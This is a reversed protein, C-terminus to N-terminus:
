KTTHGFCDDLANNRLQTYTNSAVHGDIYVCNNRQGHRTSLAFQPAASQAARTACAAIVPLESAAAADM